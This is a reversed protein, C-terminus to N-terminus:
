DVGDQNAEKILKIFEEEDDLVHQTTLLHACGQENRKATLRNWVQSQGKDAIEPKELYAVLAALASWADGKIKVGHEVLLDYNELKLKLAARVDKDKARPTGVLATKIEPRTLCIIEETVTWIIGVQAAMQLITTPSRGFPVPVEVIVTEGPLMSKAWSFLDHFDSINIVGADTIVGAKYVVYGVRKLGLDIGVYKM